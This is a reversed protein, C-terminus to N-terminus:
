VLASSAWAAPSDHGGAGSRTLKLIEQPSTVGCPPEVSIQGPECRSVTKMLVPLSAYLM